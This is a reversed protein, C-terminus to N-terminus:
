DQTELGVTGFCTLGVNIRKVLFTIDMGHILDGPLAIFIRSLSDTVAPQDV